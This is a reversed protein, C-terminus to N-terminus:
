VLQTMELLARTHVSFDNLGYPTGGGNTFYMKIPLIDASGTFPLIDASGTFDFYGLSNMSTYYTTTGDIKIYSTPYIFTNGGGSYNFSFPTAGYGIASGVDTFHYSSTTTGTYINCRMNVKFKSQPINLINLDMTGTNSLLDVEISGGSINNYLITTAGNPIQRFYSTDESLTYPSFNPGDTLTPTPFLEIIM